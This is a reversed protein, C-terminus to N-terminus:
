LSASLCVPLNPRRHTNRWLRGNVPMWTNAASHKKVVPGPQFTGRRCLGEMSMIIVECVCVPCSNVCDRVARRIARSLNPTVRCFLWLRATMHREFLLVHLFQYLQQLLNFTNQVIHLGQRTSNNEHIVDSVRSLRLPKLHIEDPQHKKGEAESLDELNFCYFINNAFTRWFSVDLCKRIQRWWRCSLLGETVSWHKLFLLM